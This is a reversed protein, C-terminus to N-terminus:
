PKPNASPTQADSNPQSQGSGPGRQGRFERMKAEREEPNLKMFEEMRRQMEPDTQGRGRRGRRGESAGPADASEPDGIQIGPSPISAAPQSSRVPPPNQESTREGPGSPSGNRPQVADRSASSVENTQGPPADSDFPDDDSIPALLIRDGEKLGSTIEIFRDNFWGTTVPVPVVTSGKQAFCVHDGQYTTVAQIPVSLVKLLNTIIIETRASVGPRLEPLEDEILVDTAYVKTDPTLWSAQADPLIGVRRVTGKFRRGPLTEVRVYAPMGPHVQRIRSEHIKVEALMRSVDPLRILEQRQRVMAGEEIIGSSGMLQLMALDFSSLNQSSSRSGTQSSSGTYYTSQGSSGYSGSGSSGSSSFGGAGSGSSQGMSGSSGRASNQRISGYSVFTPSSGGSGQNGGGSSFGGGGGGSSQRGGGSSGSLGGGGASASQGGGGSSATQGGTGSASGQGSSGAALGQGPSAIGSSQAGSASSGGGRSSNGSGGSGSFGSSGGSGSSSGSGRSRGGRREEGIGGMGRLGGSGGLTMSLSSGRGRSRGEEGRGGEGRGGQFPSSTSYVVLGDQPALIKANALQKRQLNLNEETLDLSKQSTKLDSEAQAIENSSRHKLRELEDKAQQLNSELMRVNNPQDFKKILRLDEQIQELGLQERKQSLSDAELESKTANGEKFLQQTRALRETAIRVQEELVGLRAESLRIQQPADGDRFKELDAQALEVQLEADKIRSEILSKQIKLNEKAQLLVFLNDQYALEQENLKDKLASSDLEVLLDGKQVHSGEKALSIIRTYGELSSRIVTENVARLAGEEVVSILLDSRKVEYFANPPYVHARSKRILGRGYFIAGVLAGAFLIRVIWNKRRRRNRATM